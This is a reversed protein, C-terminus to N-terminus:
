RRDETTDADFSFALQRRDSRKRNTPPDIRWTWRGPAPFASHRAQVIVGREAVDLTALGEGDCDIVTAEVPKLEGAPGASWWSYVLEGRLPIRGPV